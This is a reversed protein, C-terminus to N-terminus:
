KGGHGALVQDLRDLQNELENKKAQEGRFQNEADVQEIQCQQTEGAATEISSRLQSITQELARQDSVNQLNQKRAEAQDIQTLIFKQQTQTQQCSNRAQDLRQEAKDVVFAQAQLRYMAIQVRQITAATNGLDQRLARIETLMAEAMQSDSLVVQAVAPAIPIALTLFPMLTRPM